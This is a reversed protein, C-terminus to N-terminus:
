ALILICVQIREALMNNMGRDKITDAIEDVDACRVAEWDVSDMTDATREREKGDSLAQMRLGDWDVADKTKKANRGRKAKSTTPSMEDVTEVLNSSDDQNSEVAKQNSAIHTRGSIDLLCESSSSGNSVQGVRCNNEQKQINSVLKTEQDEVPRQHNNSFNSNESSFKQVEEFSIAIINQCPAGESSEASLGSQETVSLENEKSIGCFRSDESPDFDRLEEFISDVGIHM